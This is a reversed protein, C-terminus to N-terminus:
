LRSEWYINKKLEEVWENNQRTKKLYLALQELRKYDQDFNTSHAPTKKRVFVIQYGYSSGLTVRTPQGIEGDKLNKVEDLFEATLQEPTLTGLDGGTAKTEEDESYRTALDAFSSGHLVSDRLARLQQVAASDSVPGKEIRMLIHRAHVSEGRRGVLQIIHFGFQTKVVKSLEGEKLSFVAEEFEHVYDGRKAWGLDGGNAATGDISYRKAFDAFDGGARISDLITEMRTKIRQEVLTDAKPVIFIHSMEYQDPVQPLSDKYAEYFEEVERRSVRLNAERNQRIKQVLLQKRMEDRFERRIRGIPKGYTQEVRQESGLQRVLNQIQQDLTRAVEDDTVEISDILAQALILKDTIMADLVQKKVEPKSVDINNQMGIFHIRDELESETIIEKDVVAVIRDIPTQSRAERAALLVVSCIVVRWVDNRM